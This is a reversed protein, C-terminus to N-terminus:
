EINLIHEILVVVDSVNVQGDGNLDGWITPELVIETEAIVAGSMYTGNHGNYSKDLAENESNEFDWYALLGIEFGSLTNNMNELIEEESLPYDWIRVEDLMGFLYGYGDGDHIQSGISVHDIGTSFNGLHDYYLAAQFVGDLYIKAFDGEKIATYYHWEGYPPSDNFLGVSCGESGRLGFRHTQEGPRTESFYTIGSHGCGTQDDRQEFITSRGEIGGGPGNMFVWAEITFENSYVITGPLSVYDDIGDLSLVHNQSSAFSSILSLLLFIHLNKL